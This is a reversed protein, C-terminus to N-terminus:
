DVATEFWATALAEKLVAVDAETTEVLARVEALVEALTWCLM